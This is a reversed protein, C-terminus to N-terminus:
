RLAAIRAPSSATARIMGSSCRLSAAAREAVAAAQLRSADRRRGGGAARRPVRARDRDYRAAGFVGGWLM